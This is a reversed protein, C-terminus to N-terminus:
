KKFIANLLDMIYGKFFFLGILVVLAWFIRTAAQKLFRSVAKYTDLLGSENIKKYFEAMMTVKEEIREQGLALEEINESILAQTTAVINTHEVVKNSLDILLMSDRDDLKVGESENIPERIYAMIKDFDVPKYFVEDVGLQKASVDSESGTILFIRTEPHKKRYEKAFVDGSTVGLQLDVILLDFKMVQTKSWAEEVTGATMCIINEYEMRAKFIDCVTKEGDVVLINM